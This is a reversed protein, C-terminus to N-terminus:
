RNFDLACADNGCMFSKGTAADLFDWRWCYTLLAPFAHIFVSTIKDVSHFVLSNRWALIAWALPGNAFVFNLKLFWPEPYVMGIASLVNVFYCFDLRGIFCPQHHSCYRPAVMLLLCLQRQRRRFHGGSM